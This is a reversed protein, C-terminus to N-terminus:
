PIEDAQPPRIHGRGDADCVGARRYNERAERLSVRNAGGVSEPDDFQGVDDEWWCVPCLEYSGPSESELTLYGGCPCAFRAM